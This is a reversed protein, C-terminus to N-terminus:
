TQAHAPSGAGALGLTQLYQRAIVRSDFRAAARQLQGGDTSSSLTADLADALTAADGPPVLRGWRGDELIERPGSPCDTAVVPTGVAMAEVLVNGFGEWRSSLALVDAGALAAYPQATYGPLAVSADLRLEEILATLREREEGEGFIVLRAARRTRLHAFARILTAFDKAPVLRGMAVVLAEGPRRFPAAPDADPELQIGGPPLVPNYIVEIRDPDIGMYGAFDEAV